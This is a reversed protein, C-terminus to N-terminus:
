LGHGLCKLPVRMFSYSSIFVCSVQYRNMKAALIVLNMKHFFTVFVQPNYGFLVNLSFLSVIIQPNYGFWVKLSHDLRRYFKLPTPM